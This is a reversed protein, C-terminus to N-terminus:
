DVISKARREMVRKEIIKFPFDRNPEMEKLLMKMKYSQPQPTNFRRDERRRNISICDLDTRHALREIKLALRSLSENLHNIEKKSVVDYRILLREIGKTLAIRISEIAAKSKRKINLFSNFLATM